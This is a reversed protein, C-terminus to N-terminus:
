NIKEVRKRRDETHLNFTVKDMEYLCHGLTRWLRAVDVGLAAASRLALFTINNIPQKSM